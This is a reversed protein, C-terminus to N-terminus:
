SIAGRPYTLADMVLLFQIEGVQPHPLKELEVCKKIFLLIRGCKLLGDRIVMPHDMYATTELTGAVTLYGANMQHFVGNDHGNVIRGDYYALFYWGSSNAMVPTVMVLAALLAMAITIVRNKFFQNRMVNVQGRGDQNKLKDINNNSFAKL